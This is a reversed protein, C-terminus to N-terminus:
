DDTSVMTDGTHVPISGTPVPISGLPVTKASARKLLEEAANEIGLGLSKADSTARQEHGKLWEHGLGQVNPKEKLFRLNMTEEVMKNPVNYVKYAKNSASYGIIYGEDAKGD